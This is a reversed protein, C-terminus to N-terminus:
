GRLRSAEEEIITRLKTLLEGHRVKVIESQRRLKIEIEGNQFFSKGVTVRIPIGILDADAFKIGPSVRRDDFLVDIGSARILTYMEEVAAIEDDAKAIGVLHVHFPAVSIPWLIGKEDYNQEVVAAMTRNVGIGYCGMIPYVAKGKEDLVTLNMSKTYKYGLKFIHGVEIGRRENM